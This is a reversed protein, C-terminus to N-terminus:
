SLNNAIPWFYNTSLKSGIAKSGAVISISLLAGLVAYEVATAGSRDFLFRCLSQRMDDGETLVIAASYRLFTLQLASAVPLVRSPDTKYSPSAGAIGARAAARGRRTGAASALQRNKRCDLM